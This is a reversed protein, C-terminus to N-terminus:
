LEASATFSESFQCAGLATVVRYAIVSNVDAFYSSTTGTINSSAFLYNNAGQAITATARLPVKFSYSAGFNGSAAGYGIGWLVGSQYYRQCLAFEQGYLRREFPTAVSGAELQVGTIYWTAGNTGVVSVTGTPQVFNGAQWSGSTGSFTSGSGLGFYLAFAASNDTPWTGTTDGPIVVTKYEFTNASNITYSFPYSRSGNTISGGFTGTLSSRVWFSITVTAASATGWMFDAANFGEVVQAMSFTDSALVSYASSSTIVISKTHGTPATSSQQVTFKSALSTVAKWRDVTYNSNATVSAGANRQDIRMDGNIIRNRLFSSAMVLTGTVTQNTTFTNASALKACPATVDSIPTQVTAGSQVVPVLETGSLPTTAAPLQSIKTDAM